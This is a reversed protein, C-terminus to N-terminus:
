PQRSGALANWQTSVDAWHGGPSDEICILMDGDELFIGSGGGGTGILGRNQILYNDGQKGEPVPPSTKADLIGKFVWTGPQSSGNINVKLDSQFGSM